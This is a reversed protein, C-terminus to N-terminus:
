KINSKVNDYSLSSYDDAQVCKTISGFATSIPGRSSSYKFKESPKAAMPAWVIQILKETKRPPNEDTFYEFNIFIYRPENSPVLANNEEESLDSFKFDKGAKFTMELTDGDAIKFIICNSKRFKVDNYDKLNQESPVIGTQM